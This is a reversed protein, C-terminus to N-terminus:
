KCAYICVCMEYVLVCVRMRVYMRVYVCVHVCLLRLHEEVHEIELRLVDANSRGEKVHGYGEEVEEREKEGLSHVRAYIYICMYIHVHM